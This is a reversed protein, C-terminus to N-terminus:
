AAILAAAYLKGEDVTIRVRVNRAHGTLRQACDLTPDPATKRRQSRTEFSSVRDVV